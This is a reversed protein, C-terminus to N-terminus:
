KLLGHQRAFLGAEKRDALHLKELISHVHYRVTNESLFLRQAIEENNFNHALEVLVDQERHTLQELISAANPDCPVTHTLEEMIELTM